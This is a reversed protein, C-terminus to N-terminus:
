AKRFLTTKAKFIKKIKLYVEQKANVYFIGFLKYPTKFILSFHDMKSNAFNDGEYPVTIHTLVVNKM